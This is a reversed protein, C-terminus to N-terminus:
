GQIEGGKLFQDEMVFVKFSRIHSNWDFDIWNYGHDVVVIVVERGELVIQVAVVVLRPGERRCEYQSDISVRRQGLQDPVNGKAELRMFEGHTKEVGAVFRDLLEADNVFEKYNALTRGSVITGTAAVYEFVFLKDALFIDRICPGGVSVRPALPDIPVM